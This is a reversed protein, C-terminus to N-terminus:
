TRQRFNGEVETQVPQYKGKLDCRLYSKKLLFIKLTTSWMVPNITTEDMYRQSLSHGWWHSVINGMLLQYHEGAKSVKPLWSVTPRPRIINCHSSWGLIQLSVHWSYPSLNTKLIQSLHSPSTLRCLLGALEQLIKLNCDFKKRWFFFIKNKM